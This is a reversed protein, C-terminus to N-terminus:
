CSPNIRSSVSYESFLVKPFDVKEPLRCIPIDFKRTIWKEPLRARPVRFKRSILKDSFRITPFEHPAGFGYKRATNLATREPLGRSGQDYHTRNERFANKKEDKANEPVRNERQFLEFLSDDFLEDRVHFKKLVHHLNLIRCFQYEASSESLYKM